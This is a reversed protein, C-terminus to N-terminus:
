FNYIFKIVLKIVYNDGYLIQTKEECCVYLIINIFMLEYKTFAVRIYNCLFMIIYLFVYSIFDLKPFFNLIM